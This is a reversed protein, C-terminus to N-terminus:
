YGQYAFASINGLIAILGCCAPVLFLGILVGRTVRGTTRMKSPKELTGSM